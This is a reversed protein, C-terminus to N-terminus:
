GREWQGRNWRLRVPRFVGEAGEREERSLGQLSIELIMMDTYEDWRASIHLPVLVNMWHKRALYAVSDPVALFEQLDPMTFAAPLPRWDATYFVIRSAPAPRLYTHIVGFVPVSDTGLCRVEWRSSSTLAVCLYSENLRVLRSPMAFLNPVSAESGERGRQVLERRAATPLLPLISDPQGIFFDEVATQAPVALASLWLCASLFAKAFRKLRRKTTMKVPKM